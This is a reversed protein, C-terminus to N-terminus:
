IGPLYATSLRWFPRFAWYASPYMHVACSPRLAVLPNSPCLGPFLIRPISELQNIFTLKNPEKPKLASNGLPLKNHALGVVLVLLSSTTSKLDILSKSKAIKRQWCIIRLVCQIETRPPKRAKQNLTRLSDQGPAFTATSPAWAYRQFVYRSPIGRLGLCGELQASCPGKAEISNAHDFKMSIIPM